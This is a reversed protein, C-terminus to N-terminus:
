EGCMVSRCAQCASASMTKDLGSAASKRLNVSRMATETLQNRDFVQLVLLVSFLKVQEVGM